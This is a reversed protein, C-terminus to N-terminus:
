LMIKQLTRFDEYTQSEYKGEPRNIRGAKMITRNGLMEQDIPVVSANLDLIRRDKTQAVVDLISKSDQLLSQSSLMFGLVTLMKQADESFPDHSFIENTVKLVADAFPLTNLHSKRTIVDLVHFNFKAFKWLPEAIPQLNSVASIVDKSVGNTSEAFQKLADILKERVPGLPAYHLINSYIDGTGTDIDAHEMNTVLEKIKADINSILENRSHEQISELMWKLSLDAFVLNPLITESLRNLADSVEAAPGGARFFQFRLRGIDYHCGPFWREHIEFQPGIRHKAPLVHCPEFGWLREHICVAHYVKEVVTSIKTDFFEYYSLGVGPNLFPIGLSGVTDFLGMFKVPTPVTHSARARFEISRQSEPHDVPDNSRYIRYVQKCLKREEDTLETNDNTHVAQGNRRRKLIGCNYIMGAVCRVTYAGRSYGFMWIEPQPTQPTYHQVIYEYVELCNKDIDDGTAGNFLYELFTGGLGAGPFYCAKLGHEDFPIPQGSKSNLYVQRDLGMMEALLFINTETKTESGSWTGDCLVVVRETPAM